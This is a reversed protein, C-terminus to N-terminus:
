SCCIICRSTQGQVKLVVFLVGQFRDRCRLFLLYYVKFDTGAGESCCVICRSIQTGAVECCCFNCKSIQTEAGESCCVIRNCRSTQTEAGEFCCFGGESCCCFIGQLVDESV